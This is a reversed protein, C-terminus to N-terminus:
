SKDCILIGNLHDIEHQIIRSLIGSAKIKIEKDNIDLGKVHIKVPREVPFEKEPLSLCGEMMTITKRSKKIIEPNILAFAETDLEPKIIIIRLSEGVQPAALGIGNNMELTKSMDLVLKKIKATIKKVEEAKKRLIENNGDKQLELINM